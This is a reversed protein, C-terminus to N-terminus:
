NMSFPFHDNSSSPLPNSEDPYFGVMGMNGVEQYFSVIRSDGEVSWAGSVRDRLEGSLYEDFLFSVNARANDSEVALEALRRVGFRNLLYETTYPKSKGVCFTLEGKDSKIIHSSCKEDEIKAFGIALSNEFNFDSKLISEFVKRHNGSVDFDIARGLYALPMSLKNEQVQRCVINAFANRGEDGCSEVLFNSAKGVVSPESSAFIIQKLVQTREEPDVVEMLHDVAWLKKHRQDCDEDLELIFDLYFSVLQSKHTLTAGSEISDVSQGSYVSTRLKMATSDASEKTSSGVYARQLNELKKNVVSGDQSDFGVPSKEILKSYIIELKDKENNETSQQLAKEISPILNERGEFIMELRNVFCDINQVVGYDIENVLIDEIESDPLSKLIRRSFSINNDCVFQRENFGDLVPFLYNNVFLEKGRGGPSNTLMRVLLARDASFYYELGDFTPKNKIASLLVEDLDSHTIDLKKVIGQRAKRIESHNMFASDLHYSIEQFGENFTVLNVLTSQLEEAIAFARRTSKTLPTVPPISFLPEDLNSSQESSWLLMGPINIVEGSEVAEDRKQIDNLKSRAEKRRGYGTFLDVLGTIKSEESLVDKNGIYPTFVEDDLRAIGGFSMLEAKVARDLQVAILGALDNSLERQPLYSLIVKLNEEAYRGQTYVSQEFLSLLGVRDVVYALPEPKVNNFSFRLSDDKSGKVLECASGEEELREYANIIQVPTDYEMGFVDILINKAKGFTDFRLFEGLSFLAYPIGNGLIQKHLVDALADEGERGFKTMLFHCAINVMHPDSSKLAVSKLDEFLIERGLPSRIARSNAYNILTHSRLLRSSHSDDSEDTIVGMYFNRLEENPIATNELRSANKFSEKQDFSSLYLKKIEEINQTNTEPVRAEVESSEANLKPKVSSMVIKALVVRLNKKYNASIKGDDKIDQYHKRLITSMLEIDKIKENRGVGALGDGFAEINNIDGYDIQKTFLNVLDLEDIENIVGVLFSYNSKNSDGRGEITPVFYESIFESPELNFLVNAMLSKRRLDQEDSVPSYALAAGLIATFSQNSRALDSELIAREKNIIQPTPKFVNSVVEILNKDSTYDDAWILFDGFRKQSSMSNRISIEANTVPAFLTVVSTDEQIEKPKSDGYLKDFYAKVRPDPGFPFSSGGSSDITNSM